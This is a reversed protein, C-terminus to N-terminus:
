ENNRVRQSGLCDRHLGRQIGMSAQSLGYASRVTVKYVPDGSVGEQTRTPERNLRPETGM